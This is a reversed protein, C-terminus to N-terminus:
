FMALLLIPIFLITLLAGPILLTCLGLWSSFRHTESVAKILIFFYWGLLILQITGSIFVGVKALPSGVTYDSLFAGEGMVMLDLVWFVLSIVLPINAWATALLMEKYTAKGKFIKGVGWALLTTFFWGLMGSIPGIIVTALLLLPLGIDMNDLVSRFSAQDLTNGIGALISLLFAFGLFKHNLIYRITTRPKVWITLWPNVPTSEQMPQQRDAATQMTQKRETIPKQRPFPKPCRLYYIWAMWLVASVKMRAYIWISYNDRCIEM